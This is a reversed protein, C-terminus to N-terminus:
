EETHLIKKVKLFGDKTDPMEALLASTFEGPQNSVEDPRLVNYRAGVTPVADTEDSVIDSIVGVYELIKPLEQELGALEEESLKIRALSALHLIEERTMPLMM